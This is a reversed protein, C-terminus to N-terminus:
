GDSQSRITRAHLAFPGEQLRQEGGPTLAGEVVLGASVLRALAAEAARDGLRLWPSSTLALRAEDNSGYPGSCLHLLMTWDQPAPSFETEPRSAAVLPNGAQELLQGVWSELAAKHDLVLLSWLPLATIAVLGAAPHKRWTGTVVQGGVREAPGLEGRLEHQRERALLRGLETEGGAGPTVRRAQWHTPLAAAGRDFPPVLVLLRGPQSVWEIWARAIDPQRQAQRGFVLAVGEEPLEGAQAGLVAALIRGRAHGALDGHLRVIM